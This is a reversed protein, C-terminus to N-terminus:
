GVKMVAKFQTACDAGVCGELTVRGGTKVSKFIMTVVTNSDADVETAGVADTAQRQKGDPSRYSATYINPSIPKSGTQVKVTVFLNGSQISKYATLFTFTSGASKIAQGNGVTLRGGLTQKNVLLDVVQGSANVKFGSFIVCSKEDSPDNCAKFSDAGQTEVTQEAGPQGGDLQSESVNALHSLYASALSAPAAFKLGARMQDPDSAAAIADVYKRIADSSAATPSPSASPSGTQSVTIPAPATAVTERITGGGGCGALLVSATAALVIAPRFRRQM